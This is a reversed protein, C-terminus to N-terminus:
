IHKNQFLFPFCIGAATEDFRYVMVRHFGTLDHVLGVVIDLLEALATSM